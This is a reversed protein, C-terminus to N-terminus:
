SDLMLFGVDFQKKVEDKIKILMEPKLKHLKQRILKCKPKLPLRHTVIETDFDPMDQYSWSFIDKYEHFLTVLDPENQKSVLTGIRMEKMEEPTGLNIVKLTEQYSMTKKKEQEILRLLEASIDYEDENLIKSLIVSQFKSILSVMSTVEIKFECCDEISHGDIETHFLCQEKNTCGVKEGDDNNKHRETFTDVINIAPCEHNPLPNQNVNPEEGTKKFILWGAKVLSQVKVKLPFCNETSDGVLEYRSGSTIFDGCCEGRETTLPELIKALQDKMEEVDQRVAQVQDNIQEDM